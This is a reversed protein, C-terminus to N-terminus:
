RPNDVRGAFLVVGSRLDRLFFLFPHDARFERPPEAPPAAGAVAMVVATAAAAETGREDVKVFAKHFVKSIYLRDEPTAPVSMGSFDGQRRDFALPMGMATLVDALSLSSAPDITFKPLAVNVLTRSLAGWWRDLTATDLSAEVADLGTRSRPLVFTMALDGGEYPLELVQVNADEAYKLHGHQHMTPVSASTTGAVWFSQNSTAEREFPTEWHALFYVANVLILRTLSDISGAPLLDRIRNQTANAVWDNVHVRGPEPANKFDVPELPARFISQMSEVFPPELRLTREGFLRNAVRLTYVTRAPDNWGALLGGAARRMATPDAPMRLVRSMEDATPGRAGVHTMALAIWISAPSVVLNGRQSRIRQWFDTAFQNSAAAVTRAEESSVAPPPVAPEPPARPEPEPTPLVQPPGTRADDPGAPQSTSSCAIPLATLLCLVARACRM